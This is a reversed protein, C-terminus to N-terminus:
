SLHTGRLRPTKRSRAEEDQFMMTGAFDKTTVPRVTSSGFRGPSIVRLADCEFSEINRRFIRLNHGGHSRLTAM